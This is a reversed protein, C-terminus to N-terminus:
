LAIKQKKCINVRLNSELKLKIDNNNFIKFPTDTQDGGGTVEGEVFGLVYVPPWEFLIDGYFDRNKVGRGGRTM